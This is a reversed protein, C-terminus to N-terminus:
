KAAEILYVQGRLKVILDQGPQQSALMQNEALNNAIALRFYEESFQVIRQAAGNLREVNQDSLESDIWQSGRRYLARNGVAQVTSLREAQHAEYATVSSNGSM